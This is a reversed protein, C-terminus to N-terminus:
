WKLRMQIRWQQRHNGDIQEYGSGVTERDSYATIGYKFGINWHESIDYRAVLYTRLGENQYVASNYQYIFDSEVTYLRAEYDDVDFLAVRATLTLPIHKPRFHVDQYCLLGGSGETEDGHYHAYALRTVLRWSGLAVDLDGQIQHRYTQELLYEDGVQITPIINRGKEKFRYRVNLTVAKALPRSLVIRYEMGHSPAYVLYKEHPFYFYDASLQATVNGPLLGQYNIGMGAENQPNSSQGIASAHLNHYYPSYYRAHTSFRHNNNMVFEGGVVVAPAINMEVSDFAHNACIAAEGFLFLRSLRYAFDCGANFINKGRFANGNYVYKAPVIAKELLTAASTVGFRLNDDHFAVNAGILQEGLQNRKDIETQTRHYGSNSISQVWDAEEDKPLTADRHVNSYLVTVDLHRALSVMCAGGQLYGYESFAGSPRIGKSYRALSTGAQSRAGYGSWLTLGQGFQAHYQGFVARKIRLAGHGIDNLMLSFGYFDFGQKQSGSFCAEGPDKDGSLQLQVKDKYRFYYRWMLRHNDGEYISDRYGRAEEVTGGAGLVLNSHGYKLVDKFSYESKKELPMAAVIPRLLAISVSDFGNVVALEELSLLPGYISIYSRLCDRQFESIFPFDQLLVNTDNINAPHESYTDFLELLDDVAEDEGEESLQELYSRWAAPMIEQAEVFTVWFLLIILLSKKM